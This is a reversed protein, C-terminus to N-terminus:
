LYITLKITADIVLNNIINIISWASISLFVWVLSWILWRKARKTKEEEWWSVLYMIGSIMLAVVAVVAVYKIVEATLNSVFWEVAKKDSNWECGPLWTWECINPAVSYVYSQLSVLSLIFASIYFPIKKM